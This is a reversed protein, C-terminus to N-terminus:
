GAPEEGVGLGGDADVLKVNGDVGHAFDQLFWDGLHGLRLIVLHESDVGLDCEEENLLRRSVQNVAPGDDRNDGAQETSKRGAVRSILSGLRRDLPEGLRSGLLSDVDPLAVRAHSASARLNWGRPIRTLQTAGPGIPLCFPAKGSITLCM